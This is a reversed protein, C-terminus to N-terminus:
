YYMKKEITIKQKQWLEQGRVKEAFFILWAGLNDFKEM